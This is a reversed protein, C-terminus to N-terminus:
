TRFQMAALQAYLGGSAKLEGPAGREAIRGRDMVVVEDAHEITALRHAVVITTRGKMLRELADQVARESQSDLASTAEDLILIPSDKYIARAIALRQRQGGSLQSANHGVNSHIGQPMTDVHTLLNADALARRVRAEDIDGGLAVNAAISDNFFIADQSVLAFQRRLAALDWQDLAVGDLTVRGSSPRVFGPLLSVLSTKGGGSPGVLALVRGPAVRLSVDDLAMGSEDGYRLSVHQFEIDGRVRDVAHQGAREEKHQNMLELGREMAVLGRTFPAAVDALHKMPSLLMLLATIFAVFDGMTMEGKSGQWLAVVMVCSIGISAIFQTLPSSLAGAASAKIAVRRLLANLVDFRQRQRQGAAHLRVFKWALVNEEVVYALQDTTQQAQVALRQLRRSVRRIVYAVAPGLVLVSLTMWWNLWLLWGLLAIVTLGDRLLTLFSVTLLGAGQQAEYVVTNTLTSASQKGFLAPAAVVMRAFMRERLAVLAGWAVWNLSYSAVFTSLGRVAFLGIIIIPVWWLPYGRSEGLGRDMFARLLAPIAMETCAVMASAAVMALLGPGTGRFYPAVRRLRQRLTEGANPHATPPTEADPLPEREFSPRPNPDSM